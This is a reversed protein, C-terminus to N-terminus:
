KACRVIPLTSCRVSGGSKIFEDYEILIPDYGLEKLTEAMRPNTCVMRGDGIHVYNTALYDVDEGKFRVVNKFHQEIVEPNYVYDTIICTDQDLINFVCDLHLQEVNFKVPIVQIDKNHQELVDQIENIGNMNTRKSVGVFVKDQHVFVDGGEANHSMKHINITEDKFYDVLSNPEEQRIDRAMNSVFLIDDITFGIDRTFVQEPSDVLDLFQVKVGHEILLNTFNHFQQSAIEQDIQGKFKSQMKNIIEDIRFNRPYAVMVYELRDYENRVTVDM